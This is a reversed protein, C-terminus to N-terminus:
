EGPYPVPRGTNTVTPMLAGRERLLRGLLKALLAARAPEKSALDNTEGIDDALNYLEIRQDSHFYILKWDGSRLASYPQQNHYFNPYHWVLPRGPIISGPQRFEPVLSAGDVTQPVKEKWDVGALDLVTPFIDDIVVPTRDTAGAATVGPWRVVMPVRVGGEYPNLKHGRLPLNRPCEPPSGNDSLFVIVTNDAVGLRALAARLDGLSKDMGEIMSALTAEAPKLGQDIYKRYFRDDKEWPAHVAYHSLYLYFPKHEAVSQEVAKIAELTLAETLYVDKGHYAELGPVDWHAPAGRWRGSFNKEGWYSGPGGAAHGAINLDFGLNRPDAGPTGIAGFHAKGVHITRYGADRLLRPLTAAGTVSRPTDAAPSLGNVPWAPLTLTPHPNDPGKDRELTWNTVGHRAVNMGTLASVRSPSCVASAYAQTFKVGEAALRELNPTRYRRNLATVETHFPVSTEQWGLDDVLFFVINPREAARAGAAVWAALALLSTLRRM